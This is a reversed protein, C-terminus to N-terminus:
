ERFSLNREVLKEKSEDRQKLNNEEIKLKDETVKEKLFEMEQIQETLDKIEYIIKVVKQNEDLVPKANLLALLEENEGNIRFPGISTKEKGDLIVESTESFLDPLDRTNVYDFLLKGVVKDTDGGVLDLFDESYHDIEGASNTVLWAHDLGSLYNKYNQITLVQEDLDEHNEHGAGLVNAKGHHGKSGEYGEFFFLIVSLSVVFISLASIYVKTNQSIKTM